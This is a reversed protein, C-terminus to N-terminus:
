IGRSFVTTLVGRPFSPRNRRDDFIGSYFGAAHPFAGRGWNGRVHDNAALRLAIADGM